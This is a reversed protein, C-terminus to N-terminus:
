HKYPKCAYFMEKGSATQCPATLDMNTTTECVPNARLHPTVGQFVFTKVKSLCRDKDKGAWFINQLHAVGHGLGQWNLMVGNPFAAHMRNSWRFNTQSDHSNSIVLAEVQSNGLAGIPKGKAHNRSMMAAGHSYRITFGMSGDVRKADLIVRTLKEVDLRAGVDLGLIASQSGGSKDCTFLKRDGAEDFIPQNLQKLTEMDRDHVKKLLNIAHFHETSSGLMSQFGVWFSSASFARDIKPDKLTTCLVPEPADADKSSCLALRGDEIDKQVQKFAKIPDKLPCGDQAECIRLLKTLTEVIAGSNEVIIERMDLSPPMTSDLIIRDAKEPFMSAYHAGVSTGYSVGYINLKEFGMQERLMDLDRAFDATSCHDLFNKGNPSKWIPDNYWKELQKQHETLAAEVATQTFDAPVCQPGTTELVNKIQGEPTFAYSDGIGRQDVAVIDYNDYMDMYTQAAKLAFCERGTGPGGCHHVFLGRPAPQTNAFRVRLKIQIKDSPPDEYDLPVTLYGDTWKGAEVGIDDPRVCILQTKYAWSPSTSDKSKLECESPPINGWNANLATEKDDWKLLPGPKLSTKEAEEALESEPDQRAAQQPAMGAVGQQVLRLMEDDSTTDTTPLEEMFIEDIEQFAPYAM